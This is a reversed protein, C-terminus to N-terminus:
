VTEEAEKKNLERRKKKELKKEKTFSQYLKTRKVKCKVFNPNKAGKGSDKETTGATAAAAAAGKSPMTEVGEGV